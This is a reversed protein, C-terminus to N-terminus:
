EDRFAYRHSRRNKEESPQAQATQSRDERRATIVGVAVDAEEKFVARGSFNV